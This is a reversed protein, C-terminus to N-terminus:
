LSDLRPRTLLVGTGSLVLGVGQGAPLVGAAFLSLGVGLVEALLQGDSSLVLGDNEDVLHLPASGGPLRMEALEVLSAPEVSVGDGVCSPSVLDQALAAGLGDVTV